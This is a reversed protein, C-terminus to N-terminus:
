SLGTVMAESSLVAAVIMCYALISLIWIKFYKNSPNELLNKNDENDVLM